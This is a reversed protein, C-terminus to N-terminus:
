NVGNENRKNEVGDLEEPQVEVVAQEKIAENLEEVRIEQLTEPTNITLMRVANEQSTIGAGVAVALMNIMESISDPLLSNYKFGVDLRKLDENGYIVAGLEKIINICRSVFEDHTVRKEAIKVFAQLFTLKMSQTSMNGNKAETMMKYLDPWTFRYIDNENNQMELKVSEPASSIELYNMMASSSKTADFGDVPKIEYIKVSDNYRPKSALSGSVVLAPNGIRTNVNSHQSRCYDQTSILGKVCNFEPVDQELYAFLIKSIPAKKSESAILKGGEYRFLGDITWIDTTSVNSYLRCKEIKDRKYEIVIADLKENEDKHRYIDYGKSRCLIKSKMRSGDEDIFFQIASRTEICAKQTANKLVGMMRLDDNWIRTFLKFAEQMKEDDRGSNLVLDIDNGYLFSVCNSVIQQAYPLSMRTKRIFVQEDELIANGSGDKKGKDVKETVWEDRLNEDCDIPHKGEYFKISEDIQGTNFTSQNKKLLTLQESLSRLKLIEKAKM